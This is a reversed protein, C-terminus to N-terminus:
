VDYLSLSIVFDSWINLNGAYDGTALFRDELSSAGFTGCKFGHPKEVEAVVTPDGKNLEYIKLHCIGHLWFSCVFVCIYM